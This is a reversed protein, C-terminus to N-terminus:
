AACPKRGTCSRLTQKAFLGSTASRRREARLFVRARLLPEARGKMEDEVRGHAADKVKDGARRSRTGQRTGRGQRGKEGAKEAPAKKRLRRAIPRPDCRHPAIGPRRPCHLSNKM